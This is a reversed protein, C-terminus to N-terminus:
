SILGNKQLVEVTVQDLNIKKVSNLYVLVDKAEDITLNLRVKAAVIRANDSDKLIRTHYEGNHYGTSDASRRKELTAEVVSLPVEDVLEIDSYLDLEKNHLAISNLTSNISNGDTYEANAVAVSQRIDFLAHILGARHLVSDLFKDRAKNITTFVQDDHESIPIYTSASNGLERLAKNISHQLTNAKRLTINM